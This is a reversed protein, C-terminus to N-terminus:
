ENVKQLDFFEWAANLFYYRNDGLDLSRASYMPMKYRIRDPSGTIEVEVKRPPGLDSFWSGLPAIERVWAPPPRTFYGTEWRINEVQDGDIIGRLYGVRARTPLFWIEKDRIIAVFEISFPGGRRSGREWWNTGRWRGALAELGTRKVAKREREEEQRRREADAKADATKAALEKKDEIAYIRDRAARPDETNAETLLYCRLEAIANDLRVAAELALNFDAWRPAVRIAERYESIALEYGTENTAAKQIAAAKMFHRRAEEPIIPPPKLERATKIIKERSADNTPSRQLEAVYQKLRERPSSDQQAQARQLLLTLMLFLPLMWNIKRSM